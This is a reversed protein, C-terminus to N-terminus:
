LIAKDIATWDYVNEQPNLQRWTVVLSYADPITPVDYLGANASKSVWKPLSWDDEALSQNIPNNSQGLLVSANLLFLISSLIKYKMIANTTALKIPM